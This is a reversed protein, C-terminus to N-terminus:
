PHRPDRGGATQRANVHQEKMFSPQRFTICVTRRAHKRTAPNPSNLLISLTRLFPVIRSVRVTDRETSM